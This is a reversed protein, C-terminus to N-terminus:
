NNEYNFSVKWDNINENQLLYVNNLFYFDEGTLKIYDDTIFIKVQVVTLATLEQYKPLKSFDITFMFATKAYDGHGDPASLDLVFFKYGITDLSIPLLIENNENASGILKFGKGNTGDKGPLGPSGQIGDKINDVKVIAILSMSITALCLLGLLLKGIWSGTNSLEKEKKM